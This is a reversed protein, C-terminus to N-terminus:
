TTQGATLSQVRMAQAAVIKGEIVQEASLGLAPSQLVEVLIRVMMGAQQEALDIQRQQIGADIAMKALSAHLKRENTWATILAHMKIDGSQGQQLTADLGFGDQLSSVAVAYAQATQSAQKVERILGEELTEEDNPNFEILRQATTMAQRM